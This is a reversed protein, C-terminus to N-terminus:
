IVKKEEKENTEKRYTPVLKKMVMELVSKDEKESITRLVDLDKTLREIDMELPQGIFIKEHTTSTLGEEAMLLEEYLKEGPRLGSYEIHMDVGPEFGSLRILDRALDAIRVPEGMDLVFIEGGRAMAGAQIVLQVAEPITMFYRIIDPHTVTVPGGEAIQKKFLPIVSGNSGLVNGFRVGVFETNSIRGISQVIMECVRKSAGMINTPNVAKDTSILVFKEAGGEDAARAVNLTGFINNKVAELPSKEMLPVHKHAAAHFVVEPRYEAFISRIRKEDRVSAIITELSLCSGYQRQLEQQIEYANNEYIDLIILRKPGFPAIQRCLESGISGGGGTVLVTKGMLYGAMKEIDVHVPDRGLLDEIEVDKIQKIDVEGGILEYVGPLTKLRCRTEKCIGIIKRLEQKSVSPMAILIENVQLREAIRAIDERGGLVPVGLMKRGHKEPDDDIIGVALKDMEPNMFLERTVMFGAKGAGVILVRTKAHKFFIRQRIRRIARYAFRAGGSFFMLGLANIVYFGNPLNPMHRDFGAFIVVMATISAGVMAIMEEISAYRWLSKYANFIYFTGIVVATYIIVNTPTIYTYTRSLDFDFRIYLAAAASINVLLADMLFLILKRASVPNKRIFVSASEVALGKM